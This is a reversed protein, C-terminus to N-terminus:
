VRKRKGKGAVVVSKEESREERRKSRGEQKM